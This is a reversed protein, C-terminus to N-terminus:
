MWYDTDVRVNFHCLVLLMSEKLMDTILTELVVYLKEKVEDANMMTTTLVEKTSGEVLSSINFGLLRKELPLTGPASKMGAPIYLTTPGSSMYFSVSIKQIIYCSSTIKWSILSAEM